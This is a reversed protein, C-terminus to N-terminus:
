PQTPAVCGEPSALPEIQWGTIHPDYRLQFLSVRALQSTNSRNFALLYVTYDQAALDTPSLAMVQEDEITQGVWWWSTPYTRNAVDFPLQGYWEGSASAELHLAFTIDQEIFDLAQWNFIITLDHPPTLQLPSVQFSQLCLAPTIARAFTDSSSVGAPPIREVLPTTELLYLAPYHQGTFEITQWSKEYAAQAAIRHGLAAELQALNRYYRAQDPLNTDAEILAQLTQRLNDVLTPQTDIHVLRAIGFEWAPHPAYASAPPLAPISRSPHLDHIMTKITPSWSVLWVAGPQNMSQRYQQLYDYSAVKDLSTLIQPNADPQMNFWYTLMLNCLPNRRDPIDFGQHEECVIIDQPGIHTTLLSTLPQWHMLNTGYTYLYNLSWGVILLLGGFLITQALIRNKALALQRSLCWLYDFGLAIVLAIAPLLYILFRPYFYLGQALVQMAGFIVGFPTLIWIITALALRPHKHGLAILGVGCLGLYVYMGVGGQPLTTILHMVHIIPAFDSTLSFMGDRWVEFANHHHEVVVPAAQQLVVGAHLLVLCITAAVLGTRQKVQTPWGWAWIWALGVMSWLGLAGFLHFYPLLGGSVVLGIWGWWRGGRLGSELFYYALVLMAIMGAYGRVTMSYGVHVYATALIFTALLGIRPGFVRAGFGYLAALTLTGLLVGPWRMLFLHENNGAFLRALASALPHNNSEVTTLITWVPLTIYNEITMREDMGPILFPLNHVRLAFGLLIVGLTLVKVLMKSQHHM